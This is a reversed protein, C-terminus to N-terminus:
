LMWRWIGAGISAHALTAVLWLLIGILVVRLPPLASSWPLAGGLQRAFPLYSTRAEWAKWGDGFLREKKRDQGAAGGLALLVISGALLIHAPTPMVLVHAVGWLAFAWMMPHRTIAFVGSAPRDLDHAGKPDPSAPNGKLSGAFLIAVFLMMVTAVMWPADATGNWLMAGKPSMRFAYAMWGLTAFAVLSYLGLFRGEGLKDVLPTRMPHSLVFHSGVFALCALLLHVM